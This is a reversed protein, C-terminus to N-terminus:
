LNISFLYHKKNLKHRKVLLKEDLQKKLDVQKMRRVAIIDFCYKDIDIGTKKSYYYIRKKVKYIISPDIKAIVEAQKRLVIELNTQTFTIENGNPFKMVINDTKKNNCVESLRSYINNQFIGYIEKISDHNKLNELNYGLEQEVEREPNSSNNQKIKKLKNNYNNELKEIVYETCKIAIYDIFLIIKENYIITLNMNNKIWDNMEEKISKEIIHARLNNYSQNETKIPESGYGIWGDINGTLLPPKKVRDIINPYENKIENLININNILNETSSYIVISDDRNSSKSYKFYYPLNYKDCKEIFITILKYTDVSETNIYLRHEINPFSDKKATLYRSCIHKWEKSKGFSSWKYKDLANELEKDDKHGFIIEYAEKMTTVDKVKRLFKQMKLFDLDYSGDEYLKIFEEKTISTISNKWKNFIMSYFQDRDSECFPGTYTKKVTKILKSYFDNSKASSNAYIKILKIIVRFDDLPNDISDYLDM